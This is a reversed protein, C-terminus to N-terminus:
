TRVRLLTNALELVKNYNVLCEPCTACEPLVTHIPLNHKSYEDNSRGCYFLWRQVTPRQERARDSAKFVGIKNEAKVLCIKRLQHLTNEASCIPCVRPIADAKFYQITEIDNKISGKLMKCNSCECPVYDNLDM